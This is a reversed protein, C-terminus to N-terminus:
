TQIVFPKIYVSQKDYFHSYLINYGSETESKSIQKIEYQKFRMGVGEEEASFLIIDYSTPRCLHVLNQVIKNAKQIDVHDLEFSVYNESGQPTVHMTAYQDGNLANFSFGEPKFFYPDFTFEPLIKKFSNLVKEQVVPDSMFFLNFEGQLGYMLLELTNVKANNKNESFCSNFIYVHHDDKRGFRHVSGGLIDKLCAMDDLASSKQLSPRYENKREYFVEELLDKGFMSILYKVAAILRTTGCTILIIRNKWVFLSSESLLFAKCTKSEISSLIKAKVLDMLGYWFINPKKLLDGVEVKFILELKKEPGEFFHNDKMTLM